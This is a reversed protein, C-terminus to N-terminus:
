RRTSTAQTLPPRDHALYGDLHERRDGTQKRLLEGILEADERPLHLLPRRLQISWAKANPFAALRDVLPQLEVGRGWSALSTVTIGCGRPFERGGFKVPVDLAEVASAVTATGIVRGRDRTPNRYAGRTTYILLEDGVALRNVEARYTAPFAMRQERLVWAIAQRDGLILLYSESM